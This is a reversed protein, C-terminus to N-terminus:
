GSGLNEPFPKVETNKNFQIPGNEAKKTGKIVYKTNLNM